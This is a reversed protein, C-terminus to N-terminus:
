KEAILIFSVMRGTQGDRRYSYFQDADTYTCHEGGYSVYIGKEALQFRAINLMDCMYKGPKHDSFHESLGTNQSLFADRVDDGVEFVDKGIAPGFWVLLDEPELQLQAITKLLIGDALGRWGAHVAAVITGQKNCILIPLCDATMVICISGVKRAFSADAIPPANFAEDACVIDVTHKQELWVPETNLNLKERLTARNQLVVNIDDNVHTALNGNKRTTTGAIINKPAPWDAIIM